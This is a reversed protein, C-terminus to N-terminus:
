ILSSVSHWIRLFTRGLLFKRMTKCLSKCTTMGVYAIHTCLVFQFIGIMSANHKFFILIICVSTIDKSIQLMFYDVWRNGNIKRLFYSTFSQYIMNLDCLLYLQKPCLHLDEIVYELNRANWHRLIAICWLILFFIRVGELAHGTNRSSKKPSHKKIKIKKLHHIIKPPTKKKKKLM